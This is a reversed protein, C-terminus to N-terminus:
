RSKKIIDILEERTHLVVENKDIHFDVNSMTVGPSYQWPKEFDSDDQPRLFQCENANVGNEIKLASTINNISMYILQILLVIKEIKWNLSTRKSTISRNRKKDYKDVIQEIKLFTTGSKSGGLCKMEEQPPPVGYEHHLGVAMSFGGARVRFGHKLSNYEDINNQDLYELSLRKWLLAFLYSTQKNKETGPMYCLFVSDTITEWDVKIINLKSFLSNNYSGIKTLIDRLDKNSCKAIWAYACDPAQIYAGLLSFMTELAHHEITRLAISARKEDEASQHVDLSYKFFDTDIGDLFEKNRKPLDVEWVCYPEENVVIISYHM